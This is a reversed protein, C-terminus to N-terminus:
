LQGKEAHELANVAITHVHTSLTDRTLAEIAVLSEVLEDHCNVRKLIEQAEAEMQGASKSAFSSNVIEAVIPGSTGALQYSGVIRLPLKLVPTTM